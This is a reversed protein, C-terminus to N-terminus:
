AAKKRLTLAKLRRIVFVSLSVQITYLQGIQYDEVTMPMIVRYEKIIM